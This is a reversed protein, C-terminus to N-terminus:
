AARRHAELCVVGLPGVVADHVTGRPLDLRDGAQLVIHDGSQPLGFTISGSVVFIVKDYPQTHAAYVDHASNSWRYPQLKEQALLSRITMEDPQNPGPWATVTPKDPLMAFRM